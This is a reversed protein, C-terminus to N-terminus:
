RAVAAAVEPAFLVTLHNGPLRTVTVDPLRERLPALAEDSLFPKQGDWRANEAVLVETPVSATALAQVHDIGWFTDVADEVARGVDLRPRLGRPTREAEAELLDLLARRLEPRSAIVKDVKAKQALAEVDPWDRDLSGLQRRFVTRTLRPGLFFPFAPRVGGDVLVLRRVRGRAEQAVLPALYAGMSHGVVVVERLDLEAMVAAVDQAHARLGTPGARHRSAGRGRLDPSIVRADPLLDALPAWVV